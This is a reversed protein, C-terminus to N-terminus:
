KKRNLRGILKGKRRRKKGYKILWINKLIGNLGILKNYIRKSGSVGFIIVLM